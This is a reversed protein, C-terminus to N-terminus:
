VSFKNRKGSNGSVSLLQLNNEVHLGSVLEGRLPIIHDVSLKEIRARQYVLKIKGIDAWPPTQRDIVVKRVRARNPYNVAMYEPRYEAMYAKGKETKRYARSSESSCIVCIWNSKKRIGGADPHKPCIKGVYRKDNLAVSM